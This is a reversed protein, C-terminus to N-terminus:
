FCWIVGFMIINKKYTVAPTSPDLKIDWIQFCLHTSIEDLSNTPMILFQCLSSLIIVCNIFSTWNWRFTFFTTRTVFINLRERFRLINSNIDNSNIQTNTIFRINSISLHLNNKCTDIFTLTMSFLWVVKNNLDCLWFLHNLLM